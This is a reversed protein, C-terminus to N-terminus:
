GAVLSPQAQEVLASAKPAIPPNVAARSPHCIADLYNQFINRSANLDANLSFSCHKCVFVSQFKRNGRETHGCRSCKQSTYRAPTYEIAIGKAKAKYYLFQEFQFFNWKNLDKRQEKRAKANRIGKLNELVITSGAEVSSVIQKAVTHNVNRRFRQEKSKLRRLHRKGSHRKSQLASRLKEYRRSITKIRKGDFFKNTSLVAIKNIGRDIGVFKGNSPIDTVDKEFVVHLFVKDNRVFLDASTYKWTLYREFYAPIILPLRKRGDVTSVSIIKKNLWLSYSNADLRIATRKSQPCSAKKGAKIKAHVSNLSEAAKTRASIALQSPLWQRCERYTKHHLSYGNHDNSEFGTKCVLNFAKTYADITSEFEKPSCDIVLKATQVLKM